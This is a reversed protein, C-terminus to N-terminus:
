GISTLFLNNKQLLLKFKKLMKFIYKFFIIFKRKVFVNNFCLLLLLKNIKNYRDIKYQNENKYMIFDNYLKNYDSNKKPIFNILINKLVQITEENLLIKYVSMGNFIKNIFMHEKNKFFITNAQILDKSPINGCLITFAKLWDNDNLTILRNLANNILDNKLIALCESYKDLTREKALMRSLWDVILPERAYEIFKKIETKKTSIGSGIRYTYFKKDYTVLTNSYYSFLFYLFCDEASICYINPIYKLAKKLNLTKFIKGIISWSIKRTQNQNPFCQNIINTNGCISKDGKINFWSEFHEHEKSTGGWYNFGIQLIDIHQNNKLFSIIESIFTTNPYLNDGDLFTLYMSDTLMIGTKRALLSGENKQKHFIVFRKDKKKYTDCIASTNDTSGDDVVIFECNLYKQNHLSVLCDVIFNQVNYAAVIISLDKM